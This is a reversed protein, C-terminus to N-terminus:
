GGLLKILQAATLGGGLAGAFGGGYGPQQTTNTGGLGTLPNVLGAFQQLPFLGANMQQQGIATMGQGMGTLAGIAQLYQNFQQGQQNIDQGRQATYFSQDM